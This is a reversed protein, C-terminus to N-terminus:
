FTLKTSNKYQKKNVNSLYQQLQTGIFGWSFLPTADICLIPAPTHQIEGTHSRWLLWVAVFICYTALWAPSWSNYTTTKNPKYVKYLSTSPHIETTNLPINM